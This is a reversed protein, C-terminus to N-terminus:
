RRFPVGARLALLARLDVLRTRRPHIEIRAREGRPLGALQSVRALAELPGGLADVLGHTEARVGSWVRGGAVREVAALTLGRGRAVRDLFARYLEGMEARLAGREDETFGRAESLLGARAGREVAERGIGLRQYLGQLDLKGGVVGISGTVTCSEALVVDAASAMYYGGSAAVEGMSAVLPKEERVRSLSRWLLDSALADGGPSDVRLVVGRVGADRRLGELIGALADSGIGRGADGRRIAGSAVVYAIRPPDSTLPELRRDMRLAHYVRADVLQVRRPGGDVPTPALTRLREELEDPYLCADVLGREVAAPATFPGRDILERVQTESLGRGEAIAGVLADFQDDLLAELQERQEPSMADRVLSEGATKHSGIRVVEPRVELHELLGRLYFADARLGVLFVRGTEPLYIRTAASALLLSEAELVEAYVVVPVGRAVLTALARRLSQAKGFGDPGSEICVLVGDVRPDTAAVELIELVELLGLRPELSLRAHATEFLPARLTLQLWVGGRRPLSARSLAGRFLRAVNRGV